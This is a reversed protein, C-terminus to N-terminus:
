LRKKWKQVKCRIDDVIREKIESHHSTDEARAEPTSDLLNCPNPPHSLKHKKLPPGSKQKNQPTSIDKKKITSIFKNILIRHGLPFEFPMATMNLDQRMCLPLSKKWKDVYQEIETISKDNMEIIADKTDFGTVEFCNCIYEPLMQKMDHIIKEKSEEIRKGTSNLM